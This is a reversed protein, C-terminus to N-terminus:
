TVQLPKTFCSAGSHNPQANWSSLINQGQASNIPVLGGHANQIAAVVASLGPVGGLFGEFSSKYSSNEAIYVDGGSEIYIWGYTSTGGGSQTFNLAQIDVVETSSGSSTIPQNDGLTPGPSNWCTAGQQPNRRAVQTPTPQPTSCSTPDDACAGTGPSVPVTPV